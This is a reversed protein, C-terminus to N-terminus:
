ENRTPPLLNVLQRLRAELEAFTSQLAAPLTSTESAPAGSVTRMVASRAFDSISRSNSGASADRLTRFEDESLRFNVLRTRPEYVPM